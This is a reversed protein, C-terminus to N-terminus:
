FFNNIGELVRDHHTRCKPCDYVVQQRLRPMTEFFNQIKSFQKTSLNNIFDDLDTKSQDKAYHIQDVDYIYDICSVIIDFVVAVDNVDFADMKKMINIDPYKMVIGIDGGLDIKPNHGEPTFVQLQTLDFTVKTQEQCNDCEFLLEVLEGVSKARIQMFLYELDFMALSDVDIEEIVCDRIVTKLTEVMVGQDESQQAILLSKQALVNFPKFKIPKKSSPIITNYIPTAARPLAM